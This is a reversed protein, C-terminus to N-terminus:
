GDGVASFAFSGKGAPPPMVASAAQLPRPWRFHHHRQARQGPRGATAVAASRRTWLSAAAAV